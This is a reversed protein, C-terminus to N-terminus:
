WQKEAGISKDFVLLKQLQVIAAINTMSSDLWKKVEWVPFEM